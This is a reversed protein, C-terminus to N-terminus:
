YSRAVVVNKWEEMINTNTEGKEDQELIEETTLYLEKM